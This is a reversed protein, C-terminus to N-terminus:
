PRCVKDVADYWRANLPCNTSYVVTHPHGDTTGNTVTATDSGNVSTFGPVTVPDPIHQWLYPAHVHTSPNEDKLIRTVTGGVGTSLNYASVDAHIEAGNAASLATINAPADNIALVDIGTGHIHVKGGTASVATLSYLDSPAGTGTGLARIVSGYVHLESGSVSFPIVNGLTLSGKSTIESGFFWSQDCGVQYTLGEKFTIQSNFWYHKGNARSGFCYEIWGSLLQVNTWYSNTGRQFLTVAYGGPGTITMDSFSLETCFTESTVVSITISKIKTKGIGSGRYTIHSVGSCYIQDFTGPGIDVLLPATASPKPNRSGEVRTGEIWSKLESINTFCNNLLQGNEYCGGNATDRLKVVPANSDIVAFVSSSFLLYFVSAASSVVRFSKM